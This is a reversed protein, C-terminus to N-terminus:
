CGGCAYRGCVPCRLDKLRRATYPRLVEKAEILRVLKAAYEASDFDGDHIRQAPTNPPIIEKTYWVIQSM